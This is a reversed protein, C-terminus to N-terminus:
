YVTVTFSKSVEEEFYTATVLCKTTGAKLGKVIKDNISIITNDEIDFSLEANVPENGVKTILPLVYEDDKAITFSDKDLVIQLSDKAQYFFFFVPIVYSNKGGRVTIMAEGTSVGKVLGDDSVTAIDENSTSYFVITGKRLIEVQIQYSDEEMINIEETLVKIYEDSVQSEQSTEQKNNNCGTLLFPTLLLTLFILKKM